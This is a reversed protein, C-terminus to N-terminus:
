WWLVDLVGGGGGHLDLRGGGEEDGEHGGSGSQRLATGGVDSAVDLADGLGHAALAIGLAESRLARGALPGVPLEEPVAAVGDADALVLYTLVILKLLKTKLPM